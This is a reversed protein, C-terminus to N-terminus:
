QKDNNLLKDSLSLIQEAFKAKRRALFIKYVFYNGAMAAIGVVSVISGWVFENWNLVMALGFGFLLLFVVGLTLALIRPPLYVKNNLKRLEKIGDNIDPLPVYEKKISEIEKRQEETPATYVYDFKNM